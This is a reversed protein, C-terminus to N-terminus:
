HSFFAVNISFFTAMDRWIAQSQRILDRLFHNPGGHISESEEACGVHGVHGSQSGRTLVIDSATESAEIDDLMLLKFPNFYYCAYIELM